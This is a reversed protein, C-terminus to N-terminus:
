PQAPRVTLRVEHAPRLTIGPDLILPRDSNATFSWRRILVALVLIAEAWAFSEGVCQRSGAGFPFYAWKPRTHGAQDDSFRDPDFQEANPWWRPDRHTVWQSVFLVTGAPVRHGHVECDIVAKRGQIWAPPYLRMSEALVARALPLREVDDIGPLREPGLVSNVEARLRAAVDPHQALLWLTFTLANATTEHGAAFLTVCEDILQRETLGPKGNNGAGPECARLLRSLLDDRGAADPASRRQRIFRRLTGIVRRRALLFGINSPTPLLAKLLGWPSVLRRFMLVNRDMADSIADAEPGIAAGFLAEAVIRLTLQMMERHLEISQGPMWAGCTEAAHRAMIGAYGALQKPHLSPQVLARRRRYDPSVNTLLGDGLTFRAWRLEPSKTFARDQTILIERVADPHVFLWARRLRV